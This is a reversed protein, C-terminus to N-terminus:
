TMDGDGKGVLTLFLISFIPLFKMHCLLLLFLANWRILQSTRILDFFYICFSRMGKAKAHDVTFVLHILANVNFKKRKNTTVPGVQM